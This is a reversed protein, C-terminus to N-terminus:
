VRNTTPELGVPDVIVDLTIKDKLRWENGHSLLGLYSQTTEFKNKTQRIKGFMRRKTSTRLVRHDPFHIWGLYDVGSAIKEILIKNSHLELNLKRALFKKASM